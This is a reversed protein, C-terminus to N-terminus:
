RLRRSNTSQKPTLSPVARDEELVLLAFSYVDSSKTTTPHLDEEKWQGNSHVPILLEPAMYPPTGVSRTTSGLIKTIGFDSIKPIGGEDVLVNQTKLDGHVVVNRHLYELGAVVGLVIDPRDTEPHEHIFTGVRGHNYFPSILFPLRAVSRDDIVGLFPVLNKHNLQFWVAAERKLRKLTQALQENDRSFIQKM